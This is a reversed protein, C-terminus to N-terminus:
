LVAILTLIIMGQFNRRCFVMELERWTEIISYSSVWKFLFHQTGHKNISQDWCGVRGCSLCLHLHMQDTMQHKPLSMKLKMIWIFLLHGSEEQNM